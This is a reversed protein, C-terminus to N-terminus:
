ALKFGAAEVAARVEAQPVDGEFTVEGTEHNAVVNTAGRDELESSVLMECHNCHMGEVKVEHKEAM